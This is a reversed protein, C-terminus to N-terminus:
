LIESPRWALERPIANFLNQRVAKAERRNSASTHDPIYLGAIWVSNAETRVAERSCEARVPCAACAEQIDEIDDSTLVEIDATFREDGGCRIYGTWEHVSTWFKM